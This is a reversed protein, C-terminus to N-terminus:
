KKLGIVIIGLFNFGKWSSITTDFRNLVSRFSDLWANTREIMYREKYLEEDILHDEELKANRKNQAVNLHMGKESCISKLKISDFGGDANMFLGDVRIGANDVQQLITNMSNEIKYLDNHNGAVPESMAIIIGQRDTFYLSNTTKRKKRGQYEVEEGGRIVPTHSGDLDGSSLDLKDKYKMLIKSWTDEWANQKCWKRYHAFVSNYHLVVDSFLSSVPLLRWQVGTKLKYLI